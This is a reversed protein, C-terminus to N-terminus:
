LQGGADVVHTVRISQPALEKALVKMEALDDPTAMPYPVTHAQACIDM